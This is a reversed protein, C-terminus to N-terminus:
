DIGHRIAIDRGDRRRQEKTGPRDASLMASLDFEASLRLKESTGKGAAPRNIGGTQKGSLETHGNQKLNSFGTFAVAVLNKQIIRFAGDGAVFFNSKDTAISRAFGRQQTTDQTVFLQIGSLDDLM